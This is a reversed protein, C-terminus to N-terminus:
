GKDAENTLEESDTWSLGTVGEGQGSQDLERNGSWRGNIWSILFSIGGLISLVLAKYLTEEGSLDLFIAKAGVLVLVVSGFWRFLAQRHYTGWLVLLLAYVAWSVSLTLNLYGGAGDVEEFINEIQVTLLGGVILHSILAYGHSLHRNGEETMMPLMLRAAYFFGIAALLIWAAAGWNLFPIYTGFWEGRPTNWTVAYWYCVVIFWIVVSAVSLLVYHRARGIWVLVIAIGGWLFVTLIPKYALDNGFQGAAILLLLLGSLFYTAVASGPRRTYGFIVAGALMYLAGIAALPYAYDMVGDLLVLCWSGFLVGNAAGLYLNLGDFTLKSRWSALLFGVMYFLFAAAAYRFPMSWLGDVSPSFHVYYVVYLLWTGAFATSRLEPWAKNVSLFFYAINLVLLYLFLAFVQDTEPRMLLPALLGGTLAIIMLLRSEMRYAYLTLGATLGLMALLVTMPPWLEYYIGAFSFTTYLIGAGTGMVIQSVTRYRKSAALRIGTTLSAAGCLLGFAVRVPDSIWGQQATYKFLTVIATMIFLVGLLSTWHRKAFENMQNM